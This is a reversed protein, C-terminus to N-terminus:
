WWGETANYNIDIVDGDLLTTAVGAGNGFLQETGNPDVTLANGSSGCNILKYHTGEVGAPLNATFAGGDTDCYIVEDTALVTYPGSTVRTTNEVKGATTVLLGNVDVSTDATLDLHGDTLSGVHIAQDRFFVEGAGAIFIENNITSAATMEEVYLGYSNDLAGAGKIHARAYYSHATGVSGTTGTSVLADFVKLLTITGARANRILANGQFGIASSVTGTGQHYAYTRGGIMDGTFNIATNDDTQDFGQFGVTAGSTRTASQTVGFSLGGYTGSAASVDHAVQFMYTTVPAAWDSTNLGFIGTFGGNAVDFVVTGNDQLNFIDQTGTSNNVVLPIETADTFTAFNGDLYTQKLTRGFPDIPGPDGYSFGFETESSLNIDIDTIESGGGPMGYLVGEIDEIRGELASVDPINGYLAGEVDELRYLVSSVDDPPFSDPANGIEVTIQDFFIRWIDTMMGSQPDFMQDVDPIYIDM